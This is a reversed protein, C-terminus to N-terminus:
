TPLQLVHLLSLILLVHMSAWLPACGHRFFSPLFPYLSPLECPQSTLKVHILTLTQGRALLNDVAWKLANQSGKDKDIAVAVLPCGADVEMQEPNRRCYM